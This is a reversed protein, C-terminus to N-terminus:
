GGLLVQRSLVSLRGGRSGTGGAEARSPIYGFALGYAPDAYGLSANAGDHGFARASGFDNGAHAKMFGIGFANQNGSARDFGYVRDQSVAAITQATLLPAHEDGSADVFGTTVAAYLTALGHANAVGGIAALGAERVARTNPVDMLEFSPGEPGVFGATSNLALGLTSYPDIFQAEDGATAKLVPRFREELSEPLGLYFDIDHPARMRREFISQLSEQAARRALEEMFVGMSLAHYTFIGPANWLPQAAALIGAALQSDILEEQTFGGEVGPLGGQHSLLQAVTMAEKGATAFEPWYEAVTAELELVGEQVLLAMVLAGAGKSCSFVGTMSDDSCDDGVHMDVVLEGHQYIALQGSYTPDDQAYSALLEAVPAFRRDLTKANIQTTM